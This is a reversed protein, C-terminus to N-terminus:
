HWDEPVLDFKAAESNECPRLILHDSSGQAVYTLCLGTVRHKLKQDEHHWHQRELHNCAMFRASAESGEGEQYNPVDLCMSEDAMIFGLDNDMVVQQFNHFHDVCSTLRAQGTPSQSSTSLAM